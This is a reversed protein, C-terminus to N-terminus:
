DDIIVVEDDEVLIADHNTPQACSSRSSVGAVRNWSTAGEIGASDVLIRKRLAAMFHEHRTPRIGQSKCLDSFEHKGCWRYFTLPLVVRGVAEIGDM